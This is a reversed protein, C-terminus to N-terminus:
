VKMQKLFTQYDRVKSLCFFGIIKGDGDLVWQSSSATSDGLTWPLKGTTKQGSWHKSAVM